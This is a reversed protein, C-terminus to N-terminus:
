NIIMKITVMITDFIGFFFFQRIAYHFVIASFM